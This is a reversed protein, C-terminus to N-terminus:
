GKRPLSTAGTVPFVLAPEHLLGWSLPFCLCAPTEWPAKGVWGKEM